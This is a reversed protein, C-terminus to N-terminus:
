VHQRREPIHQTLVHFSLNYYEVQPRRVSPFAACLEKVKKERTNDDKSSGRFWNM